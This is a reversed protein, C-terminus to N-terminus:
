SDIPVAIADTEQYGEKSLINGQYDTIIRTYFGLTYVIKGDQFSVKAETDTVDGTKDTATMNFVKTRGDFFHYTTEDIIITFAKVEDPCVWYVKGDEDMCFDSLFSNENEWEISQEGDTDWQFSGCYQIYPECMEKLESVDKYGDPLEHLLGYATLISDEMSDKATAYQSIIESCEEAKDRSDKYNGLEEFVTRADAYNLSNMMSVASNYKQMPIFVQTILVVVTILVVAVVSSFIAIKKQKKRWSRKKQEEIAKRETEEAEFQAQNQTLLDPNLASFITNLSVECSSCLSEGRKNVAGCSCLWVDHYELPEFYSQPSTDRQYQQALNGIIKELNQQEPLPEWVANPEATWVTNDSFIVSTCAVSFSRAVSDTLPVATKQGFEVNRSVSLDLYQYETEATQMGSVDFCRIQVKVAQIVKSTINRLKLQVLVKDTQTDKLLAGAAIIVPAGDTYLREPLSFLKTYRESM